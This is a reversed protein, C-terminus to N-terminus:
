VWHTGEPTPHSNSFNLYWPDIITIKMYNSIVKALIWSIYHEKSTMNMLDMDPDLYVFGM